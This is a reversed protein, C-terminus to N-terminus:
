GEPTFEADAALWALFSEAVVQRPDDDHWLSLLQGRIGGPAPALDIVHHNGCGDYTV